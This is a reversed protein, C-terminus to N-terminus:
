SVKEIIEKSSSIVGKRNNRQGVGVKYDGLGLVVEWYRGGSKTKNSKHNIELIIIIQDILNFM